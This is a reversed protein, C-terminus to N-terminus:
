SRKGMVDSAVGVFSVGCRLYCGGGKKKYNYWLFMMLCRWGCQNSDISGKM